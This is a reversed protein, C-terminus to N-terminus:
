SLIEIVPKFRYYPDVNPQDSRTTLDSELTPTLGFSSKLLDSVWLHKSVFM